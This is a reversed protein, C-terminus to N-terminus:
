VSRALLSAPNPNSADKKLKESSIAFERSGRTRINSSSVNSAVDAHSKQLRSGSPGAPRCCRATKAPDKLRTQGRIPKTKLPWPAWHCAMPAPARTWTRPMGRTGHRPCVLRELLVPRPQDSTSSSPRSWSVVRTSLGHSIWGVQTADRQLDAEHVQQGPHDAVGAPLDRRSLRGPRQAKLLREPDDVVAAHQRSLM